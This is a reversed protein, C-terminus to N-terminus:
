ILKEKILLKYADSMKKTKVRSVIQKFEIRDKKSLVGWNFRSEKLFIKMQQKTKWPTLYIFDFLAKPLSAVSYQANDITQTTFGFFLDDKINRYIFGGLKTTIKRTKKTTIYTVAYVSEALFGNKELVYELSLYSPYVMVGGVYELLQQQFQSKNFYVLNLYFGGKLRELVGKKILASIRYDLTRRNKGLIIQLNKRTIYVSKLNNLEMHVTNYTTKSIIDLALEPPKPTTALKGNKARAM